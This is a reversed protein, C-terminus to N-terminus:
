YGKARDVVCNLPKGSKFRDLNECILNTVKTHYEGTFGSVHPTLLFNPSKWYPSWKKLPERAFVDLAAAALRGQRVAEALSAYDIVDERATNVVIAGRKLKGIAYADFLARTADTTPLCIALADLQGLISELDSVPVLQDTVSQLEQGKNVRCIGVVKM